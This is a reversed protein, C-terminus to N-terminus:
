RSVCHREGIKVANPQVHGVHIGNCWRCAYPRLRIGRQWRENCFMQAATWTEWKRKGKCEKRRLKRKSSM